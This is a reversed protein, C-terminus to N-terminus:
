EGTYYTGEIRLSAKGGFLVKGDKTRLRVENFIRNGGGQEIKISHGNWKRNKILYCGFASNGSGTAPDELYGFKPAFVRTHAFYGPGATEMSYVLVIDVSNKLCYQKLGEEHPYMSIEDALNKIPVILTRLGADIIDLPLSDSIAGDKIGLAAAISQRSLSCGIMLPDPASIYICDEENIHNYINLRGMRNTGIEIVPSNRLGDDRRIVEYMTAITGHGCFAVECESSYYTLLISGTDDRNVYVVESVFGSHEKAIALMADESLPDTGLDLFAAPNGESNGITFANLKYYPYTKM